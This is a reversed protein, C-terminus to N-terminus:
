MGSGTGTSGRNSPPVPSGPISQRPISHILNPDLESYREPHQGPPQYPQFYTVPPSQPPPPPIEAMVNGVPQNGAWGEAEAQKMRKKWVLAVVIVIVAVGGVGGGVGAGVKARASLGKRSTERSTGRSAERPVTTTGSTFRTTTTTTTTSTLTETSTRDVLIFSTRTKTSVRTIWYTTLRTTTLYYTSAPTETVTVTYTIFFTFDARKTLGRRRNEEELRRACPTPTPMGRRPLMPPSTM